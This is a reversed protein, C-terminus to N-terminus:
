AEDAQADLVTRDGLIAPWTQVENLRQVVELRDLVAQPHDVGFSLRLIAALSSLGVAFIIAHVGRFWAAFLSLNHDVPKFLVWLAWAVVLDFVITIIFIFISWRFVVESELLNTYTARADGPVVISEIAILNSFIATVFIILYSLETLKSLKKM